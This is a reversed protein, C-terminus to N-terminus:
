AVEAVVRRAVQLREGQESSRHTPRKADLAAGGSNTVANFRATFSTRPCCSM